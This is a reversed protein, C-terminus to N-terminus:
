SGGGGALPRTTLTKMAGELPTGDFVRGLIDATSVGAALAAPAVASTIKEVLAKDGFVALAEILSPSIAECRRIFETTQTVLQQADAENRMQLQMMDHAFEQSALELAKATTEARATTVELRGTEEIIAREYRQGLQEIAIASEATETLQRQTLSERRLEELRTGRETADEAVSLEIAGSLAKNQAATLLQAVESSRIDVGLVEVDYVRMYNEEFALGPRGEDDLSAGLLTDRVIDITDAYFDRINFQKAVNRLRSRCHDTLMQVYNDVDFWRIADEGEPDEFNVRYSVGINVKVLDRTEVTIMDSVVNNLVRLYGTRLLQTDTKPRGTSLSLAMITEDYELLVTKPGHEVRRDGTKNTVLVAYGPWINIAVAGEYKTDLTITRAPTYSTSRKMADGGFAQSGSDMTAAGALANASRLMVADPATDNQEALADAEEQYRRNVLQAEANGPYMLEVDHPDLIRRVVVEHRPDPLFMAPGRRLNVEGTRRDLVYRGEGAPIAIAHHKRRDGYTIISHEPRPFYIAQEIGTIFLEEGVPHTVADTAKPGTHETYAEIVKVYLGSREDLEIAQFNRTGTQPNVKFSETPRPFVVAPGHVYRKKGNEDLLVCYELTELTVANRVYNGAGISVGTNGGEERVVELGTSPMYFSVETGPIIFLQGMTLDDGHVNDTEVVVGESTDGSAQPAVVASAWNERAQQEDYVRVLVYQNHRLHHGDITQATQGPWLPFTVPGPVIVRKGVELAVADSNKADEPHTGDPAPNTLVVYQGEGAITWVFKAAEIDPVPLYRKASPEWRVLQDTDSLSNKIPGVYTSVKGKTSDLVYAYTGPPLVLERNRGQMMDSM